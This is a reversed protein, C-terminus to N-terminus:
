NHLIHKFQQVQTQFQKPSHKNQPRIFRHHTRSGDASRFLQSTTSLESPHSAVQSNRFTHTLRRQHKTSTQVGAYWCALTLTQKPVQKPLAQFLRPPKINSKQTPCLSPNQGTRIGDPAETSVTTWKSHPNHLVKIYLSSHSKSQLRLTQAM